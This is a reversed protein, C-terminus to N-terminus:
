SAINYPMFQSQLLKLKPTPIMPEPSLNHIFALAQLVRHSILFNKSSVSSINTHFDKIASL